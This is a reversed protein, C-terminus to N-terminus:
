TLFPKITRNIESARKFNSEVCKFLRKLFGFVYDLISWGSVAAVIPCAFCVAFVFLAFVVVYCLVSFLHSVRVKGTDTKMWIFTKSKFPWQIIFTICRAPFKMHM